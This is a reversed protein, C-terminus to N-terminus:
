SIVARPKKEIEQLFIAVLFYHNKKNKLKERLSLLPKLQLVQYFLIKKVTFIHTTLKVKLPTKKNTKNRIKIIFYELTMQM